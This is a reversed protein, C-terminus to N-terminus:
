SLMDAADRRGLAANFQSPLNFLVLKMSPILDMSDRNRVAEVMAALPIRSM